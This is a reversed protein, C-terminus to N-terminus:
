KRGDKIKEMERSRHEARERRIIDVAQRFWVPQELLSGPFPLQIIDCNEASCCDNVLKLIQWTRPTITSVPCAMFKMDELKLVDRAKSSVQLWEDKGQLLLHKVKNRNRCNRYQRMREPCM